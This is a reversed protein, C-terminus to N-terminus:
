KTFFIYNYLKKNYTYFCYSLYDFTYNVSSLEQNYEPMRVIMLQTIKEEVTMTKLMDYSQQYYKSFIGNDDILYAYEPKVEEKVEEEKPKIKTDKKYFFYYGGVGLGIIILLLLLKKM